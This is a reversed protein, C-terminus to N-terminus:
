SPTCDRPFRNPSSRASDTLVDGDEQKIRIQIRSVFGVDPGRACRRRAIATVRGTGSRARRACRVVVPRPRDNQLLCVRIVQRRVGSGTCRLKGKASLRNGTQTVHIADHDCDFSFDYRAGDAAGAGGAALSTGLACCAVLAAVIATTRGRSTMGMGQM